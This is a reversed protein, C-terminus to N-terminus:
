SSTSKALWFTEHFVKWLYIKYNAVIDHLTTIGFHSIQFMIITMNFMDLIIKAPCFLSCPSFLTDCWKKQTVYLMFFYIYIRVVNFNISAVWDVLMWMGGRFGLMWSAKLFKDLGICSGTIPLWKLPTQPPTHTSQDTGENGVPCVWVSRPM